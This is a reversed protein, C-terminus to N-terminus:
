GGPAACSSRSRRAVDSRRSGSGRARRRCRSAGAARAIEVHADRPAYAFDTPGDFVGGRGALAFTEGDVTVMCGGEFPLVILEDEGTEFAHSAGPELSLVRLGCFGWGAGEPTIELDYM